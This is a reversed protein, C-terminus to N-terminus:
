KRKAYRVRAAGLEDKGAAEGQATKAGLDVEVAQYTHGGHERAAEIHIVYRGQPVRKGDQDAGDWGVTYRGPARTPKATAEVVGPIKRGYRRWWVYNDEQWDQRDGMVLLTKVLAKDADTVWVVVYPREYNAVSIKPLEYSVEVAFGPPLTAAQCSNWGSTAKPAGDIDFLLAEVGPLSEALALAQSPPMVALATSLADAAMATPAIVAAQRRPAPAGTRRDILHSRLEGGVLRDRLGPGSVALAQNSVRVLAAPAANDQLAAPHTVGLTWARPGWCGIDGGIDIMLSDACPSARRAAFLAADIVYGKAVGDVDLGGACRADFAGGTRTRWTECAAIVAALDPSPARVQGANYAALESDSRWPSLVKDLRAVEALAAAYATRAAAQSATSVAMDFSTGLVHDAHFRFTETEAASVAPAPSLAAALALGPLLVASM